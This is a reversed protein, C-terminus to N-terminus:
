LNLVSLRSLFHFHLQETTDSKKCGWPSYGVLSGRGHSKGPLLVPTPHWQRRRRSNRRVHIKYDSLTKCPFVPIKKKSTHHQYIICYALHHSLFFFVIFLLSLIFLPVTFSSPLPHQMKKKRFSPLCLTCQTLTFLLQIFCCAM